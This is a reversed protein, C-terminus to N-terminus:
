YIGAAASRQKGIKSFYIRIRVAPGAIIAKRRLIRLGEIARPERLHEERTHNAHILFETDYVDNINEFARTSLLDVVKAVMQKRGIANSGFIRFGLPLM